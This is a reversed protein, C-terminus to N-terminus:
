LVRVSSVPMQRLKLFREKQFSRVVFVRILTRMRAIQNSKENDAHLFKVDKAIGFIGPSFESYVSRIRLSIQLKAPRVHVFTSKRVYCSM